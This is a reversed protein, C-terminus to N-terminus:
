IKTPAPIKIERATLMMMENYQDVTILGLKFLAVAEDRSQKLIKSM